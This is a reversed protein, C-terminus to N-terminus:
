RRRASSTRVPTRAARRRATATSATARGSRAAAITRRRTSWRPPRRAAAVAPTPRPGAAAARGRRPRTDRRRHGPHVNAAASAGGPGRGRGPRGGIRALATARRRAEDPAGRTGRAVRLRRITEYSSRRDFAARCRTCRGEGRLHKNAPRLIETRETKHLASDHSDGRQDPVLRTRAHPVFVPAAWPTSRASSTRMAVDMRATVTVM